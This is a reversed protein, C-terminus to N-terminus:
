GAFVQSHVTHHNRIQDAELKRSHVNRRIDERGDTQSVSICLSLSVYVCLSISASLLFRSCLQTAWSVPLCKHTSLITTGFRTLKWNELILMGGFIKGVTLKLSLSTSLYLSMSVFLCLSLASFLFGLCLQTAWGVLLCKHTSLITTEFRTLKWNELILMGGFIKGVTLKLSLSVSLYLSMSVFLCLTLASLLLGSCLQTAWSVPLCKHTSLITTGFRTLKWNELILMGGFIKGFRWNSLCLSLSVYVCLSM